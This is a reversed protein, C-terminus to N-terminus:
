ATKEKQRIADAILRDFGTWRTIDYRPKGVGCNSGIMLELARQRAGFEPSSARRLVELIVNIVDDQTCGHEEAQSRAYALLPEAGQRCLKTALLHNYDAALVARMVDDSGPTAPAPPVPPPVGPLATIQQHRADKERQLSLREKAARLVQRDIGARVAAHGVRNSNHWGNGLHSHLWKCAEEVDAEWGAGQRVPPPTAPQPPPAAAAAKASDIHPNSGPGAPIVKGDPQRLQSATAHNIGAVVGDRTHRSIMNRLWEVRYTSLLERRDIKIGYDYSAIADAVKVALAYADASEAGTGLPVDYAWNVDGAWTKRALTEVIFGLSRIDRGREHECAVAYALGAMAITARIVRQCRPSAKSVEYLAHGIEAAQRHAAPTRLHAPAGGFYDLWWNWEPEDFPASATTQVIPHQGFFPTARWDALIIREPRLPKVQDKKPALERTQAAFASEGSPSLLTPHFITDPPTQHTLPTEEYTARCVTM